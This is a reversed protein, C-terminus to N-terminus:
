MIWTPEWNYGLWPEEEEYASVLTASLTANSDIPKFEYYEDLGYEEMKDKLFQTASWGEPGGYILGLDPNDQNEFITPDIIDPDLLDQVSELEPYEEAFYRPIYLGQENDAFNMAVEEFDGDAIYDDYEPINDSWVEVSADLDGARLSTVMLATDAVVVDVEYDYGNELIFKVIQDHFQNSDWDGEGLTITQVEDECAALMLAGFVLLFLMAIKRNFILRLM